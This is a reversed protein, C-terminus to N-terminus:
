VNQGLIIDDCVNEYREVGGVNVRKGLVNLRAYWHPKDM